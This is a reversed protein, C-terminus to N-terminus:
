EVVISCRRDQEKRQLCEQRRMPIRHGGSGPVWGLKIGHRTVKVNMEAAREEELEETDLNYMLTGVASVDARQMTGAGLVVM